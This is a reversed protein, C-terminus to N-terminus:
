FNVYIFPSGGTYAFSLILGCFVFFVTLCWFKSLDLVPYFAEIRSQNMKKHSLDVDSVCTKKIAVISCIVLIVFAFILWTYIQTLGNTFSFARKLIIFAEMITASRFFVWILSVVIFTLTTAIINGFSSPVKTDSNSFKMYLKHIVLALGHLLGWVIFNISAGHWLGGIVMTLLLNIYTRVEGKRSGGLPYYLYEQLWSSLTIHWRKWFETINHSLYPLNFNRPLKFGLIRAIGIAMDSYGSFDFYIQLSYSLIAFLVTLSSFALPTDYVQNVFVSLRDALM